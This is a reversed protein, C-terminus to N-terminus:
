LAKLKINKFWCDKGHDQLGIYGKRPHFKYATWFKHSTGDPRTYPQTFLDFDVKNVREGNLNVTLINQQLKVEIHNWEGAPKMANKIPKALDYVAGTDYYGAKQSDLLQVEIGNHGTNKGPYPQLPTTRVFIGSNCGPSLKFDLALVFNEWEQEYVLMYGGAGHPNLSNDEPTRKSAQWDSTMWDNLSHGDFLLIWGDQKEATTLQNDASWGNTASVALLLVVICSSKLHSSIPM